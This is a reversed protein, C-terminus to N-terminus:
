PHLAQIEATIATNAPVRLGHKGAMRTVHGNMYDIETPRGAQVDALMSSTNASTQRAVTCAAHFLSDAPVPYGEQRMVLAVEECIVQMSALAEPIDLLAGNRCRYRVTLPNIACNIALKQWRRWRIDHAAQVQEGSQQWQSAIHSAMEQEPGTDGGILTEGRGALVLTDRAERFVGDTTIAVLVLLDPRQQRLWDDVGMGNQLLLVIDGPRLEPLLPALGARTDGAKTTVLLPSPSETTNGASAVPFEHCSTQGSETLCLRRTTAGRTRELLTVNCGLAHLRMAWLGGIAGAGLIHWHSLGPRTTM